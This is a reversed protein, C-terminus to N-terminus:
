EDSGEDEDGVVLKLAPKDVLTLRDMIRRRSTPRSSRYHRLTTIVSAHGALAQLDTVDVGTEGLRNIAYKRLDYARIPDKIDWRKNLRALAGSLDEIRRWGGGTPKTFIFADPDEPLVRVIAAVAEPALEVWGTDAKTKDEGLRVSRHEVDVDRARMRMLVSTRRPTLALVTLLAGLPAHYDWARDILYQAEDDRVNRPPRADDKWWGIKPRQPMRDVFGRRQCWRLCRSLTFVEGGRSLVTSRAPRKGTHESVDHHRARVFIEIADQDIRDVRYTGLHHTLWGAARRISRLYSETGKLTKQWEVLADGLMPPAAPNPQGADIGLVVRAQCRTAEDEAEELSMFGLTLSHRESTTPNTWVLRHYCHGTAPDKRRSDTKISVKFMRLKRRSM